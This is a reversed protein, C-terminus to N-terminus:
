IRLLFVVGTTSRRRYNDIGFRCTRRICRYGATQLLFGMEGAGFGTPRCRKFWFGLLKDYVVRHLLGAYLSGQLRPLLCTGIWSWYGVFGTGIPEHHYRVVWLDRDEPRKYVLALATRVVGERLPFEFVAGTIGVLSTGSLPTHLFLHASIPSQSNTGITIFGGSKGNIAIPRAVLERIELTRDMDLRFGGEMLAKIRADGMLDGFSTKIFGFRPFRIAMRFEALFESRSDMDVMNAICRFSWPVSTHHSPESQGSDSITIRRGVESVTFDLTPTGTATRMCLVLVSLVFFLETKPKGMDSYM